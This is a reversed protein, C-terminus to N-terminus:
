IWTPSRPKPWSACGYGTGLFMALIARNRAANRGTQLAAVFIQAQAATLTRRNSPASRSPPEPPEFTIHGRQRAWMFFAHMVRAHTAVTNRSLGSDFMWKYWTLVHDASTQPLALDPYRERWKKWGFTDKEITFPSQGRAQKDYKYLDFPEPDM